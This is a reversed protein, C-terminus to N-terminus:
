VVALAAIEAPALARNWVACHALYGNWVNSPVVNTAGITANIIAGAWAGLTVQTAGSQAGNYYAKVEGNAGASLSWTMGIHMWDTTTLAGLAINETVGGAIYNWDIANNAVLRRIIIINSANVQTFLMDRRTGDTWVGVNAVKAWFLISGEQGNFAGALTATFANTYDNAGDYYPSTNGDGIGPYGLDVGTYTGNQAAKILCQAVAGSAEWQPWYAIPGTALVKDAYTGGTDLLRRRAPYPM